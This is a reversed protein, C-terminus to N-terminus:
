SALEYYYKNGVLGSASLRDISFQTWQSKIVTVTGNINMYKQHAQNYINVSIWDRMYRLMCVPVIAHIDVVIVTHICAYIAAHM